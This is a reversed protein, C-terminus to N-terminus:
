LATMPLEFEGKVPIIKFAEQPNSTEPKVQFTTRYITPFAVSVEIFQILLKEEKPPGSLRTM